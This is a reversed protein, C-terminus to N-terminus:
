SATNSGLGEGKVKGQAISNTHGYKYGYVPIVTGFGQFDWGLLLRAPLVAFRATSLRCPFTSYGWCAPPLVWGKLAWSRTARVAKSDGTCKKWKSHCKGELELLRVSVQWCNRLCKHSPLTWLESFYLASPSNDRHLSPSVLVKVSSISLLLPLFVLELFYRTSYFRKERKGEDGLFGEQILHRFVNGKWFKLFLHLLPVGMCHRFTVANMYAIFSMKSVSHNTKSPVKLPWRSWSKLGTDASWNKRSLFIDQLHSGEVEWESATESCKFYLFLYILRCLSFSKLAKHTSGERPFAANRETSGHINVCLSFAGLPFILLSEVSFARNPILCWFPVEAGSTATLLRRYM